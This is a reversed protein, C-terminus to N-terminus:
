KVTALVIVVPLNLYTATAYALPIGKTEVTMVIDIDRKAFVSAFLKGIENLIM